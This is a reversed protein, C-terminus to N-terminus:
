IGGSAGIIKTLASRGTDGDVVQEHTALM